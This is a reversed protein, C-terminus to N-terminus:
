KVGIDIHKNSTCDLCRVCEAGNMQDVPDIDVPCLEACVGCDDCKEYELSFRFLSFRNFFSFIAGLPCLTRCFGRSVLVALAIVALLVSIRIFFRPVFGNFVGLFAWPITSEITGSPCFDCFTYPKGPWFFPVALVLGVLVAYKTYGTWQPVSFKRSRIKYLLDQMFGFPCLWGCVFRGGLTGVMVLIGLTIFPFLKLASFNVLVGLPCAMSALPCSHCYFVPACIARLRLFPLNLFVLASVQTLVRATKIKKARTIISGM